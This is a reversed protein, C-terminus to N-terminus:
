VGSLIGNAGACYIDSCSCHCTSCLFSVPLFSRWKLPRQMINAQPYVKKLAVFAYILQTGVVLVVALPILDLMILPIVLINRAFGFSFVHFVFYLHEVYYRRVSPYLLHLIGAALFVVFYLIVSLNDKIKQSLQITFEEHTQQSMIEKELIIEKLQPAFNMLPLRDVNFIDGSQIMSFTLFHLLVLM